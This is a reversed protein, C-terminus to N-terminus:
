PLAHARVCKVFEAVCDEISKRATHLVLDAATPPEYASSVGTFNPLDGRFARAYLGKPDRAACVALPVDLFIEVFIIGSSEVIARARQRDAQSPSILAAIVVTGQVALLAALCATRRINEARDNASFGLDSSLGARLEDGDLLLVPYGVDFLEGQVSRALTSKGSGSLGTLWFM